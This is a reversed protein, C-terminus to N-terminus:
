AFLFLDKLSTLRAMGGSKCVMQEDSILVSLRRELSGRRQVPHVQSDRLLLRWHSAGRGLEGPPRQSPFPSSTHFKAIHPDFM